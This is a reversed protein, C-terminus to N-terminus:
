LISNLLMKETIKTRKLILLFHSFLHVKNTLKIVNLILGINNM